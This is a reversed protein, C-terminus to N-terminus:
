PNMWGLRNSSRYAGSEGPLSSPASSSRTCGIDISFAHTDISHFPILICMPTSLDFLVNNNCTSVLGLTQSPGGGGAVMGAKICGRPREDQGPGDVGAGAGTAAGTAAGAGTAARARRGRGRSQPSPSSKVQIALPSSTRKLSQRAPRRQGTNHHDSHKTLFCHCFECECATSVDRLAM